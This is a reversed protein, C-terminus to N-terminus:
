HCDSMLCFPTKIRATPFRGAQSNECFVASRRGSHVSCPLVHEVASAGVYIRVHSGRECSTGYIGTCICMCLVKNFIIVFRM